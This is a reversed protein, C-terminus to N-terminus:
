FLYGSHKQHNLNLFYQVKKEILNRTTRIINFCKVVVPTLNYDTFNSKFVILQFLQCCDQALTVTSSITKAFFIIRRKVALAVVAFNANRTFSIWDHTSYHCSKSTRYLVIAKLSCSVYLIRCIIM